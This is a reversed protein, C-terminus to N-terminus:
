FYFKRSVTNKIGLFQKPYYRKIDDDLETICFFVKGNKKNSHLGCEDCEDSLFCEINLTNEVFSAM